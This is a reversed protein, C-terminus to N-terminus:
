SSIAEITSRVQETVRARTAEDARHAIWRAVDEWPWVPGMNLSVPQPFDPYRQRWKWVTDRQVGAREAIEQAGVPDFTTM